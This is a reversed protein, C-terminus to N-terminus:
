LLAARGVRVLGIWNVLSYRTGSLVPRVQHLASSPFLILSGLIPEWLLTEGQWQIELEGGTYDGGLQIVVSYYRHALEEGDNDRHWSFFSGLDYRGFQWPGFRSLEYGPVRVEALAAKVRESLHPLPETLACVQSVRLEPRYGSVLTAPTLVSSLGLDVVSQCEVPSLFSPHHLIM